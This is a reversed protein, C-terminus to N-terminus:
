SGAPRGDIGTLNPGIPTMVVPVLLSRYHQSLRREAIQGRCKSCTAAYLERGEEAKGALAATGLGLWGVVLGM